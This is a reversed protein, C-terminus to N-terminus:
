ELVRREVVYCVLGRFEERGVVRLHVDWFLCELGVGEGVLAVLHYRLLVLAVNLVDHFEKEGLIHISKDLFALQYRSFMTASFLVKTFNGLTLITIGRCSCCNPLQVAITLLQPIGTSEGKNLPLLQNVQRPQPSVVLLLRTPEILVKDNLRGKGVYDLTELFGKV